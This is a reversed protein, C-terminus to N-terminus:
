IKLRQTLIRFALPADHEKVVIFTDERCSMVYSVNIWESALSSLIFAIVGPTTEIETTTKIQIIAFGYDIKLFTSKMAINEDLFFM